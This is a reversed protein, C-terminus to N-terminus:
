NGRAYQNLAKHITDFSLPRIVAQGIDEMLIYEITDGKRKKDMKMVDLVKDPQVAIHVPLGYKHLLQKLRVRVSPTLGAIEESLMCAIIMGIGVAEGHPLEDLKEIAHGATHGFNLLKRIGSEREDELVTKNKWNVCRHILKNLMAGQRYTGLDNAMLEDFLPADFICAYKIVEAFGNSWESDPLTDLFSNDYLIFGPQTITGLVNKYMGTSVGNKGGIAADVMALVTTPVFGFSVGRMYVSALFGTIDTIVGGGVGVLMTSRTAEALLLRQALNEITQLSKSDEGAPIVLNTYQKFLGPYLDAMHKDTIVVVRADGAYQRLDAFSSHFLYDVSGSPFIVNQLM